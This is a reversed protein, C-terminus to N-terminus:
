TSLAATVGMIVVAVVVVVVVMVNYRLHDEWTRQSVICVAPPCGMHAACESVCVCVYM